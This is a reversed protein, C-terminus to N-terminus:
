VTIPVLMPVILERAWKLSDRDPWAQKTMQQFPLINAKNKTHKNQKKAIRDWHMNAQAELSGFLKDLGRLGLIYWDYFSPQYVAAKKIM